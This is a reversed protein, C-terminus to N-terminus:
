KKRRRRIATGAAAGLATALFTVGTGILAFLLERGLM